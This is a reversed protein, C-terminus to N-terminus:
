GRRSAYFDLPPLMQCLESLHPPFFSILLSDSSPLAASGSDWEQWGAHGAQARWSRRAAGRGGARRSLTTGPAKCMGPSQESLFRPCGWESGLPLCQKFLIWKILHLSTPNLFVQLAQHTIPLGNVPDPSMQLYHSRKALHYQLLCCCSLPLLKLSFQIKVSALLFGM